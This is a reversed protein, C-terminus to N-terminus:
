QTAAAADERSTDDFNNGQLVMDDCANEKDEHEESTRDVGVATGMLATEDGGTRTTKEEATHADTTTAVPSPALPGQSLREIISAVKSRYWDM